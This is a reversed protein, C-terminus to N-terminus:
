SLMVSGGGGGGGGRRRGAVNLLATESKNGNDNFRVGSARTSDHTMTDDLINNEHKDISKNITRRHCIDSYLVSKRTKQEGYL